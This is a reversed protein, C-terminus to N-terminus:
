GKKAKKQAAWRKKQAAAIKARGEASMTRKKRKNGVGVGGGTLLSRAQQLRAIEEEIGAVLEQTNM